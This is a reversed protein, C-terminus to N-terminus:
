KKLANKRIKESIQLHYSSKEKSESKVALLKYQLKIKMSTKGKVRQVNKEIEIRVKLKNRM